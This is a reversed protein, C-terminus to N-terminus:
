PKFRRGLTCDWRLFLGNPTRYLGNGVCVHTWNENLRVAFPRGRTQEEDAEREGTPRGDVGVVWILHVGVQWCGMWRTTTRKLISAMSRGTWSSGSGDGGAEEFGSVWVRARREEM